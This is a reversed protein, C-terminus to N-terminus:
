SDEALLAKRAAEIEAPSTAPKPLSLGLQDVVHV